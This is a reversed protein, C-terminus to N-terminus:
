RWRRWAKIICKIHRLKDALYRDHAGLGNLDGWARIFLLDFGDRYLWSNYFRFPPLGFNMFSTCLLVPCHGSYERPLALVYSNPFTAMFNPCILIRDLKSLKCGVDSFYTFVYIEQWEHLSIILRIYPTRGYEIQTM